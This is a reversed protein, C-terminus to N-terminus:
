SNSIKRFDVLRKEFPQLILFILPIIVMCNKISQFNETNSLHRFDIFSYFNEREITRNIMCFEVGGTTWFFYFKHRLSHPRILFNETKCLIPLPHSVKMSQLYVSDTSICSFFVSYEAEKISQASNSLYISWQLRIYSSSLRIEDVKKAM